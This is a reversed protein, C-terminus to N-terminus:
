KNEASDIRRKLIAAKRKADAKSSAGWVQLSLLLRTPKGNEDREPGPNGSMRSLFSYQRKMESLNHATKVPPKLNHGARKAAARGAANLGGKPNEHEKRKIFEAKRIARSKQVTGYNDPTEMEENPDTHDLYEGGRHRRIDEKQLKGKDKKRNADDDAHFKDEAIVYMGNPLRKLIVVKGKLPGRELSFSVFSGLNPADWDPMGDQRMPMPLPQNYTHGLTVSKKFSARKERETMPLTPDDSLTKPDAGNYIRGQKIAPWMAQRARGVLSLQERTKPQGKEEGKKLLRVVGNMRLLLM